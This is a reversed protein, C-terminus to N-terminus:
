ANDGHDTRLRLFPLKREKCLAALEALVPAIKEDYIAESM